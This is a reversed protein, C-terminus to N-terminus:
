KNEITEDEVAGLYGIVIGNRNKMPTAIVTVPITSDNSHIMNFNMNFEIGHRISNQWGEVVYDRDDEHVSNMWASGLCESETRGLMRCFTRNVGIWNGKADAEYVGHIADLLYANQKQEVALLGNEIRNVADRLSSGGNTHLQDYIDDIKMITHVYRRISGAFPRLVFKYLWYLAGAFAVSLAVVDFSIEINRVLSMM